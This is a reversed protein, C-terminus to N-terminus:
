IINRSKAYSTMLESYRTASTEDILDLYQQDTILGARHAEVEPMGVYARAPITDYSLQAIHHSAELLSDATGTDYWRVNSVKSVSLSDINLYHQNVSTIELEGRASPTIFRAIDSVRNDYQYLGPVIFNSKPNEPKEEISIAKGDEDFEIVGFRQPDHVEYALVKAGSKFQDARFSQLWQNDYSCFINDGLILCVDDKGIFEEGIIFADAIGRQIHQVKISINLGLSEFRKFLEFYRLKNASDVIILIDTIGLSILTAFPYYIMPKDYIPLLPKPVEYTMPYLRSGKGAALIIGKM